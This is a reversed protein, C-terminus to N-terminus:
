VKHSIQGSRIAHVSRLWCGWILAENSFDRRYDVM